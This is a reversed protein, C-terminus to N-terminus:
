HIFDLDPPEGEENTLAERILVTESQLRAKTQNVDGYDMPEPVLPPLADDVASAPRKYRKRLRGFEDYSDGSSDENKTDMLAVPTQPKNIYQNTLIM